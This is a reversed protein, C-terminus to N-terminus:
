TRCSPSLPLFLSTDDVFVDCFTLYSRASSKIGRRPVKSWQPVVRSGLLKFNSNQQLYYKSTNDISDIGGLPSSLPAYERGSWGSTRSVHGRHPLSNCITSYTRSACANKYFCHSTEISGHYSSGGRAAGSCGRKLQCTVWDRFIDLVHTLEGIRLIWQLLLLTKAPFFIYCFFHTFPRELVTLTCFDVHRLPACGLSVSSQRVM